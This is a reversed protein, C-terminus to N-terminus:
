EEGEEGNAWVEDLGGQALPGGCQDCKLSEEAVLDLEVFCAPCHYTGSHLKKRKMLSGGQARPQRAALAEMRRPPMSPADEFFALRAHGQDTLWYSYTARSPDVHRGALGQRVLRVLAMAATGYPVGLADAVATADAEGVQALYVLVNHKTM